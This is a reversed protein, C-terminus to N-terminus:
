FASIAFNKEATMLIVNLDPNLELKSPVIGKCWGLVQGKETWSLVMVEMEALRTVM